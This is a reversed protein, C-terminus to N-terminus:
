ELQEHQLLKFRADINIMYKLPAAVQIDLSQLMSQRLATNNAIVKAENPFREGLEKLTFGQKETAFKLIEIYFDHQKKKFM